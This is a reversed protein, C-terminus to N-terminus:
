EDMTHLLHLADGFIVQTKRTVDSVQVVLESPVTKKTNKYAVSWERQDPSYHVSRRAFGDFKRHLASHAATDAIRIVHPSSLEPQPGAFLSGCFLILLANHRFM